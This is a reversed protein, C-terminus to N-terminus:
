IQAITINLYNASHLSCAIKTVNMGNQKVSNEFLQRCKQRIKDAQYYNVNKFM